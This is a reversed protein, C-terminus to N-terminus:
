RGVPAEGKGKSTPYRRVAAGTCVMMGPNRQGQVHPIEERGSGVGAGCLREESLATLFKGRFTKLFM